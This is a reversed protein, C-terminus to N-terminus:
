RVGSAAASLELLRYVKFAPIQADPTALAHVDLGVHRALGAPDLGLSRALNAYGSIAASRVVLRKM